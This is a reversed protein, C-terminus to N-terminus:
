APKGGDMEDQWTKLEDWKGQAAMEAQKPWTDTVHSGRVGAIIESIEEPKKASLDKFTVVWAAALTEAIKPGIGEVKTLDDAKGTVKKAPAEKKVTENKDEIKPTETKEPAQTKEEAVAWEELLEVSWGAKKVAEIATASAKAVKVTLAWSLEGDGLLKVPANKMRLMGNELLVATDVTKVKKEVLINLDKVNLINYKKTFRANSFGKLKPMRRFLPTQGWEFWQPVGWGSRSNQGNMGRGCFTGKGSANGRGLKKSKKRSGWTPKITNNSLM